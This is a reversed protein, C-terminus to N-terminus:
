DCLKIFSNGALPLIKVGTDYLSKAGETYRHSRLAAEAGNKPNIAFVGAKTIRKLKSALKNALDIKEQEDSMFSFASEKLGLDTLQGIHLGIIGPNMDYFKNPSSAEITPTAKAFFIRIDSNSPLKEALLQQTALELGFPKLRMITVTLGFETSMENIYEIIEDLTAHFQITIKKM